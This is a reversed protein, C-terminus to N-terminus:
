AVIGRQRLDDLEDQLMGLEAGLVNDTDAAFARGTWRITGPSESMRFLVDQMRVAGLDPDNLAPFIDRYAVQPDAMLGAVDYVPAAGANARDFADLVEVQTRKSIWEAVYTDLLDAHAARGAGTEFWSEDTVEPHGVLELVRRAISLSSTSIAVWKDDSTLYTNRPANNTSRNGHRHPTRKLQDYITPQPGLISILPELIALDVVQGGAQERDRHYLAIMVALAACMGAVGDALGFPPLTPPGAAEGTMMAFGSMAEILTGYAPRHAYPGTQGFGTVRIVVLDPNVESLRRPALGWQELTGPRFGEVLVDATAALRLFIEAGEPEGLDIAICRKNRGLLKWWLSEGNKMDGHGRLPDKLQPHEVKIVDAGFDGLIQCALPGAIMTACDLVRIGTLPAQGNM